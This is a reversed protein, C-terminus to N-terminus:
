YYSVEISILLDAVLPVNVSQQPSKMKQLKGSSIEELKPEPNM